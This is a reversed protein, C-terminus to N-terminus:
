EGFRIRTRWPTGSRSTKSRWSAPSQVERTTKGSKPTLRESAGKARVSTSNVGSCLPSNPKAQPIFM